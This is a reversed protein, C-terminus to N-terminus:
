KEQNGWYLGVAKCVQRIVGLIGTASDPIAKGIREMFLIFALIAALGQLGLADTLLQEM